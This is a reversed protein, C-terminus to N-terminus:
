VARVRFHSRRKAAYFVWEGYHVFVLMLLAATEIQDLEAHSLIQAVRLEEVNVEHGM